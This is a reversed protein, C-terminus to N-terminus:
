LKMLSSLDVNVPKHSTLLFTKAGLEKKKLLCNKRDIWFNKDEKFVSLYM